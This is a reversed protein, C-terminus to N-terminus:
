YFFPLYKTSKSLCVKALKVVPIGGGGGGGELVGCDGVFRFGIRLM